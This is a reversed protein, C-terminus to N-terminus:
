VHFGSLLNDPNFEKGNHACLLHKQQNFHSILINKFDKLIKVEDGYFSTVRFTRIDGEMKFNGVSICIIKGFEAWIGARDYFKEASYDERRQYKSKSEWLEQKTNDLDKFNEVEPVTEIDLFLINELNLKSIM